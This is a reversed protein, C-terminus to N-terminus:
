RVGFIMRRALFRRAAPVADLLGLAAGRLMRAGPLQVGFARVLGDTV